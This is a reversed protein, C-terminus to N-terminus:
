NLINIVINTSLSLHPLLHEAKDDILLMKSVTVFCSFHFSKSLYLCYCKQPKIPRQILEVLQNIMYILENLTFPQKPIKFSFHM